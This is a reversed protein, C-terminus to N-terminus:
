NTSQIINIIIERNSYINKVIYNCLLLLISFAFISFFWKKKNILEKMHCLINGTKFSYFIILM